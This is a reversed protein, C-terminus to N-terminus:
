LFCILPKLLIMTNHGEYVMIDFYMEFFDINTSGLNIQNQCASLQLSQSMQNHVCFIIFNTILKDISEM